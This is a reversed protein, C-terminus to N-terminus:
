DCAGQDRLANALNNRTAAWEKPLAERTYVELARRYCAVAEALLAARAPGETADAQDSLANALSNQTMAWDKPLAERIYVELARQCCAVAEARLAARAPGETARAQDRLAYALNNQTMAWDKPLAERTRVELARRHCAVAEALLAARAPGETADAQDSLAIALNHQWAAWDHKPMECRSTIELAEQFPRVAEDFRRASIWCRGCLWLAEFREDMAAEGDDGNSGREDVFNKSKDAAERALRAADAYRAEAWAARAQDLLSADADAAVAEAPADISAGIQGPAVCPVAAEAAVARERIESTTFDSRPRTAQNQAVQAMVSELLKRQQDLLERLKRQQDFLKRFQRDRSAHQRVKTELDAVRAREHALEEVLGDVRVRLELVRSRLEERTSVPTRHHDGDLLQRRHEQQLAQREADEPPYPDYPFGYACVFLYLPKGLERAIDVEMQTYSRRPEGPARINPESGYVMGALHVVSHCSAIRQRLMDRVTTSEPAFNTQEVPHCGLTLLAEKIAARCSRLDASAASIFINPHEPM